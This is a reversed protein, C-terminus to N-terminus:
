ISHEYWPIQDEPRRSHLAPSEIKRVYLGVVRRTLTAAMGPAKGRLLSEEDEEHHIGVVVIVILAVLGLFAAVAILMLAEIAPM